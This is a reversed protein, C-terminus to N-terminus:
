VVAETPNSRADSVDCERTLQCHPPSLLWVTVRLLTVWTEVQLIPKFYRWLGARIAWSYSAPIFYGVGKEFLLIDTPIGVVLNRNWSSVCVYM